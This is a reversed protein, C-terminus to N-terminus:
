APSAPIVSDPIQATTGPASVELLEHGLSVKQPPLLDSLFHMVEPVADAEYGLDQANM